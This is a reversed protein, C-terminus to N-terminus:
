HKNIGEQCANEGFNYYLGSLIKCFILTCSTPLRNFDSKQHARKSPKNVKFVASVIRKYGIQQTFLKLREIMEKYVGKKRHEPVTYVHCAWVEKTPHGFGVSIFGIVRNNIDQAVVYIQTEDAFDEKPMNCIKSIEELYDEKLQNIQALMNKDKLNNFISAKFILPEELAYKDPNVNEEKELM